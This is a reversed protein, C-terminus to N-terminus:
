SASPWDLVVREVCTETLEPLLAAHLPHVQYAELAAQDVFRVLLGHTVGLDVSRQHFNPGTTIEILGPLGQAQEAFTALITTVEGARGDKAKVVVVHEIVSTGRNM